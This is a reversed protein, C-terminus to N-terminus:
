IFVFLRTRRNELNLRHEIAYHIPNSGQQYSPEVLKGLVPGLPKHITRSM